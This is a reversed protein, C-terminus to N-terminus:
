DVKRYVLSTNANVLYLKLGNIAYTYTQNNLLAAYSGENVGPCLKETSALRGFSLQSGMIQIYSTFSNCGLYGGLRMDTLNFELRPIGNPYDAMVIKQHNISDLVWIDYLRPNYLNQGCGKYQQYQNSGPSKVDVTVTYPFKEGSMNNTCAQKILQVILMGKETEAAYRTVDADMAKVGKVAPTILETGSLVKFHMQKDFDIELSWFPETGSAIFDIGKEFQQQYKGPNQALTKEPEQQHNPMTTKKTATCSFIFLTTALLGSLKLTCHLM